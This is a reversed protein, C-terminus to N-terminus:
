TTVMVLSGTGDLLIRSGLPRDLTVTVDRRQGVTTYWGPRRPSPVPLLAVAAGSELVDVDPYSDHPSGTFTMTLICGSPDVTAATGHWGVAPGPPEWTLQVIAPDLVWIPEPVHEARVQWAPLEQRGRDTAFEATGLTATILRLPPGAYAAPERRIVQLVAAPFGPAAQVAGRLFALKTQGDPFGGPRAAPGLLVLPRPQHDAPFGAWAELGRRAQERRREDATM